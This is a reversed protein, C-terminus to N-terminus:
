VVSKRDLVFTYIQTFGFNILHKLDGKRYEVLEGVHGNQPYYNYRAWQERNAIVGNIFFSQLTSRCEGKDVIEAYQRM